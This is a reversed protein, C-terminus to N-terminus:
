MSNSTLSATDKITDASSSRLESLPEVTSPPFFPKPPIEIGEHSGELMELVIDIPPRDSPNIQICWLGALVMKRAICLGEDVLAIENWQDLQTYIWDPFYSM